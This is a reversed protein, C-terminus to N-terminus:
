LNNSNLIKLTLGDNLIPYVDSFSTIKNFWPNNSEDSQKLM